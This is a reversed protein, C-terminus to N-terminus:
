DKNLNELPIRILFMTEGKGPNTVEEISNEIKAEGGYDEQIIERILTAGMGTGSKEAGKYTTWLPDFIREFNHENIGHGNDYFRITLHSSSVEFMIKIIKQARPVETLARFSNSFLNIIVSEFSAQNM